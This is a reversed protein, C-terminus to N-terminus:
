SEPSSGTSSLSESDGTARIGANRRGRSCRSLGNWELSRRRPSGQRPSACTDGGSAVHGGMRAGFTRKTRAPRAATATNAPPLMAVPFPGSPPLVSPPSAPCVLDAACPTVAGVVDGAPSPVRDSRSPRSGATAGPSSAPTSSKLVPSQQGAVISRPVSSAVVVRVSTQAAGPARNPTRSPSM